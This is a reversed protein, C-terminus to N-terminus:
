KKLLVKLILVAMGAMFIGPVIFSVFSETSNLVRQLATRSAYQGAFGCALFSVAASLIIGYVNRICALSLAIFVWSVIAAPIMSTFYVVIYLLLYLPTVVFLGLGALVGSKVSSAAAFALGFAIGSNFMSWAFALLVKIFTSV